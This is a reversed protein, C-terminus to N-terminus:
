LSPVPSQALEEFYLQFIQTREEPPIPAPATSLLQWAEQDAGLELSGDPSSHASGAENAVRVLAALMPDKASQLVRGGDKPHHMWLADRLAVPLNWQAALAAAADCHDFGFLDTERAAM